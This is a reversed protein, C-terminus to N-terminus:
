EEIPKFSPLVRVHHWATSNNYGQQYHNAKGPSEQISKIKNIWGFPMSALTLQQDM